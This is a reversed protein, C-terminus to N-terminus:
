FKLQQTLNKYDEITLEEARVMESLNLNKLIKLIEEKSVKLNKTLNNILTKRRMAFSSNVIKSFKSIFEDSYSIEKRDLRIVSSDVNPM